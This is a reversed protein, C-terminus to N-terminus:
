GSLRTFGDTAGDSRHRRRVFRTVDRHCPPRDHAFAPAAPSASIALAGRRRGRTIERPSADIVDKSARDGAGEGHTSPLYPAILTGAQLSTTCTLAVDAPM